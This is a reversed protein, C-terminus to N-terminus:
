VTTSRVLHVGWGGAVPIEQFGLRDYFGRARTNAPDMNLFVAPAGAAAAAALWTEMLARGYGHGQQGPLLDIHLHAPYDVLEPHLRGEPRYHGALLDEESTRPPEPPHPYRDALRPIWVAHYERVFRETNATGLVYGVARDDPDVLVFALAPDLHVYPGAFLDPMLDDTSYQGRADGGADATRVCIQYLEARDGTRYPRIAMAPGPRESPMETMGHTEWIVAAAVRVRFRKRAL